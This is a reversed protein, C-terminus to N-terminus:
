NVNKTLQSPDISPPTPQNYVKMNEQTGYDFNPLNLENDIMQAFLAM